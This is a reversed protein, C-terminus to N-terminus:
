RTDKGSLFSIYDWIIRRATLRAQSPTWYRAQNLRGVILTNTSEDVYIVETASLEDALRIAHVWDVNIAAQSGVDSSGTLLIFNWPSLAPMPVNHVKLPRNFREAWPQLEAQLRNKFANLQAAVAPVQSAKLNASFPLRYRLTDTITEIDEATLGFLSGVWHDVKDWGAEDDKQALDNFLSCATKRDIVSLNEFVPVPIEDIIFKEVVEREFGFRGSTILAHWLAVKSGIVLALYCALERGDKHTNTSYGHYSQNFVVSDLVVSTRIRAHKVPPSERVLLLPGKFLWEPRPDHIRSQEFRELSSADVLLGTELKSPLEPLHQLYNASAGPLDAGKRVRSSDRLRQYGNGTYKARGRHSGFSAHWYEDLTPFGKAAIRDYLELDLRTGRFLIKLLEPRRRVDETTVIEANAADIRWAGSQNLPGELHPSTFRFGAGATPVVNRAFILCFPASIEPWVRTKRLETGNVVGTVDLAGFLASRAEPMTEGRQFLLRAHLAFAIQGKPRAWEMARWVFPLDLVENPIPARVHDDCLRERAIRSIRDELSSWNSLKTATAWPPNGIVLDYAGHHEDGVDDGLSGLDKSQAGEAGVGFKRLVAPRLDKFRLKKLPEPNPDLEISMLYLGLAAFRLASENIDFGTIQGYLIERLTETDPRQGDHRWREAVLQRFATLLFVGAGAAPDLIRTQHTAGERALAAFAARVMLEAIHRPTYYGGESRQKEPEHHSLYREYAQSLVGVPIHAFDLMDWKEQWELLLQGDPARRLIRGLICFAEEPLADITAATLPLFDGNFTEDLWESIAIATPATDFLTSAGDPGIACVSPPLIERDALFRVFLARGVLSIADGDAVDLDALADLANTLLKLIVDSIWRRNASIQPRLNGLHPITIRRDDLAQGIPIRAQAADGILGVQYITMSGPNVVALYPADGRMAVLRRIRGFREADGELLTGDILFFLPRDQWEYVGGLALLDSDGSRRATTLTAYPLLEPGDSDFRLLSAPDGGYQLLINDFGIMHSM